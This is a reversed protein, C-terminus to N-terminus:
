PRARFMPPVPSPRAMQLCMTSACPWLMWTRLLGSTPEVKPNVMDLLASYYKANHTIRQANSRFQLRATLVNDSVDSTYGKLQTTENRVLDYWLLLKLNESFYHNYGFSITTYKIDAANLNSGLQGIDTGNVERNPDYWDLKVGVQHKTNVINQLLYFFAGDFRRIYLPASPGSTLFPLTGPTESTAELATQTGSWYEGRLETAGWGHTWKLQLNGGYYRRPLPDGPTTTTSDAVFRHVGVVERLRYTSTASQRIKGLVMGVGGSIKLHKSLPMQKWYFQGIVDKFGDFDTTGTLGQGNFLGIDAKVYRLLGKRNRPEFSVMAGIDRETRMLIQSMRGREPSERDSSSLNVEYGFPRAFMGTTVSFVKWKNEWFRGWFDRIFVGRETGDFQFVFQLKPNHHDDFRVYDVRIRGRRLMFRSNSYTSFDGGSYSKIGPASALQFQPQIYGSMRVYNFKKYIDLMGKGLEKTTDVMDMLFQGKAPISIAMIIILVSTRFASIIRKRTM